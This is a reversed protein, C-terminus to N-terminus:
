YDNYSRCKYEGSMLKMDHIISNVFSCEVALLVLKQQFKSDNSNYSFGAAPISTHSRDPSHALTLWALNVIFISTTLEAAGVLAKDIGRSPM